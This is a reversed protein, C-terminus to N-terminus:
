AEGICEIDVDNETLVERWKKHRIYKWKMSPINTLDLDGQNDFTRLNVIPNMSEISVVNGFVWENHLLHTGAPMYWIAQKHRVSGAASIDLPLPQRANSGNLHQRNFVPHRINLRALTFPESLNFPPPGFHGVSLFHDRSAEIKM